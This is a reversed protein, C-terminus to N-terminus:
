ESRWALFINLKLFSNMRKAYGNDIQSSTLALFLQSDSMSFLSM